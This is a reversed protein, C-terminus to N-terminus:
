KELTKIILSLLVAVLVDWIPKAGPIGFNWLFVLVIWTLYLKKTKM